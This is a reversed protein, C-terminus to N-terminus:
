VPPRGKPPAGKIVGSIKLRTRFTPVEKADKVATRFSSATIELQSISLFKRHNELHYLLTLLQRTNLNLQVELPVEVYLGTERPPLVKTSSVQLGYSETMTKVIEQLESAAVTASTGSLFRGELKVLSDKQTKSTQAARGQEGILMQYKALLLRQKDLEETWSLHLSILPNIVAVFFLLVLCGGGL